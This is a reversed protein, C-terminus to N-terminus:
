CLSCAQHPPRGGPQSARVTAMLMLSFSLFSVVGLVGDKWDKESDHVLFLQSGVITLMLASLLGVADAMRTEAVGILPEM